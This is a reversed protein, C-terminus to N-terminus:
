HRHRRRAHETSSAGREERQALHVHVASDFEAGALRAVGPELELLATGAAQLVVPQAQTTIAQTGLAQM